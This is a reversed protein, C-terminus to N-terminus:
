RPFGRQEAQAHPRKAMLTKLDRALRRTIQEQGQPNMHIPDHFLEHRHAFEPNYNLFTIGEDGAAYSELLAIARDYKEPEAANFVDITPIYALVLHVGHERVLRITEEWLAVAAPDFEIPRFEGRWIKEKLAAVDVRGFKLNTWKKLWGRISFGITVEDFRPTRLFRRPWYELPDEAHAQIYRRVVPVDMFPYFLRHSNASLGASTFTHADVDYVLYQPGQPHLALYHRLMALRNSSDAGQRAYKAVPVDLAKELGIKDIGLVTHSHGLCLVPAPEHLGFYRELGEKLFYGAVLFDSILFLLLFAAYRRAYRSLLSGAATKRLVTGLTESPPSEVFPNGPPGSDTKFNSTSLSV